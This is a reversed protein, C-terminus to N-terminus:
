NRYMRFYVENVFEPDGLQKESVKTGAEVPWVKAWGEKMKWNEIRQWKPRM